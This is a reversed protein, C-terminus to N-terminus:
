PKFPQRIIIYLDLYLIMNVFFFGLKWIVEEYFENSILTQLKEATYDESLIYNTSNNTLYKFLFQPSIVTFFGPYM